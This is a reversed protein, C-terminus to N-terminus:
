APRLLNMKSTKAAYPAKVWGPTLKSEDITGRTKDFVNLTSCLRSAAEDEPGKNIWSCQFSKVTNFNVVIKNRALTEMALGDPSTGLLHCSDPLTDSYM